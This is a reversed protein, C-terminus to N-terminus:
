SYEILEVLFDHLSNEPFICFYEAIEQCILLVYGVGFYSKWSAKVTQRQSLKLWTEKYAFAVIERSHINYTRAIGGREIRVPGFFSCETKNSSIFIGGM